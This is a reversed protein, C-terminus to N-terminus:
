EKDKIIVNDFTLFRIEENNTSCVFYKKNEKYYLSDYILPIVIKNNLDIVGTKFLDSVLLYKNNVLQIINGYSIPIKLPLIKNKASELDIIGQMGNLSVVMYRYNLIQVMYDYKAPIILTGLRNILGFKNNSKVELYGYFKSFNIEDYATSIIEGESNAMYKKSDKEIIFLNKDYTKEVKPYLLPFFQKGNEDLFGQKGNQYIKYFKPNDWKSEVVSDCKSEFLFRGQADYVIENQDKRAIISSFLTRDKRFSDYELPLINKLNPGLIGMKHDKSVIFNFSPRQPIRKDHMEKIIEVDNNKIRREQLYQTEIKDYEFGLLVNNDRDIIGYKTNKKVIYVSDISPIITDYVFPVRIKEDVAIIGYKNEKKQILYLNWNDLYNLNQNRDIFRESILNGKTSYKQVLVKSDSTSTNNSIITFGGNIDKLISSKNVKLVIKNQNLDFLITEDAAKLIAIGNKFDFSDNNKPVSLGAIKKGNLRLFDFKDATKDSKDICVLIKTVEEKPSKKGSLVVKTPADYIVDYVNAKIIIKGNDSVLGPRKNADYFKYLKGEPSYIPYNVDVNQFTSKTKQGNKDFFGYKGDKEFFIVNNIISSIQDKSVTMNLNEDIITEFYQDTKAYIFRKPNSYMIGIEKFKPEILKQSNLDYFGLLYNYRLQIITNNYVELIDYKELIRTCVDNEVKVLYRYYGQICYFTEKNSNIIKEFKYVTDCDKPLTYIIKNQADVIKCRNDQDKVLYFGDLFVKIEKYIIPFVEKGEKDFLGFKYYQGVLYYKNDFTSISNYDAPIITKGNEDIVGADRDTNIILYQNELGYIIQTYIPKIIENGKKDDLGFLKQDELEGEEPNAFKTQSTLIRNLNPATYSWDTYPYEKRSVEKESKSESNGYEMGDLTYKKIKTKLCTELYPEASNKSNSDFGSQIFDYKLYVHDFQPKVIAIKDKEVSIWGWLKQKKTLFLSTNVQEVEDFQAETITKNFITKLGCLNNKAYVVANSIYDADEKIPYEYKLNKWVKNKICNYFNNISDYVPESDYKNQTLNYIGYKSNKKVIIRKDKKLDKITNSKDANFQNQEFINLGKNYTVIQDFANRASSSNTNFNRVETKNDKKIFFGNTNVSFYQDINEIKDCDDILFQAKEADFLGFKDSSNQTIFYDQNIQQVLKFNNLLLKGDLRYLSVISNKYNLFLVIFKDQMIRYDGLPIITKGSLDILANQRNLNVGIYRSNKDRVPIQDYVPTIIYKKTNSNYVGFHTLLSTKVVVIKVSDNIVAGEQFKYDLIEKCHKKWLNTDTDALTQKDKIQELTQLADQVKGANFLVMAEQKILNQNQAPCLQILLLFFFLIPTKM